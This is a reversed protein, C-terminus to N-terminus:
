VGQSMNPIQLSQIRIILATVYMAAFHTKVATFADFHMQRV